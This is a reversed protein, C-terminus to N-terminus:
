IKDDTGNYTIFVMILGINKIFDLFRKCKEYTGNMGKFAYFQFTKLAILMQM